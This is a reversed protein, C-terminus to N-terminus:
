PMGIHKRRKRPIAPGFIATESWDNIAFGTCAEDGLTQAIESAQLCAQIGTQFVSQQQNLPAQIFDQAGRAKTDLAILEVTLVDENPEVDRRKGRWDVVTREVTQFDQQQFAGLLAVIGTDCLREARAIAQELLEDQRLALYQRVLHTWSVSSDSTNGKEKSPTKSINQSM